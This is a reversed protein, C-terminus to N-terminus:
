QKIYAYMRKRGFRISKYKKLVPEDFGFYTCHKRIRWKAEALEVRSSNKKRQQPIQFVFTFNKVRSFRPELYLAPKTFLLDIGDSQQRGIASVTVSDDTMSYHWVYTVPHKEVTRFKFQYGERLTLNKEITGFRFQKFFWINIETQDDHPTKFKLIRSPDNFIKQNRNVMNNIVLVKTHDRSVLLYEREIVEEGETGLCAFLKRDGDICVSKVYLYYHSSDVIYEDFTKTSDISTQYDFYPSKCGGIVFGAVIFILFLSRM